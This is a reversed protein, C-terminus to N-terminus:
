IRQVRSAADTEKRLHKRLTSQVNATEVPTRFVHRLRAPSKRPNGKSLRVKLVTCNTFETSEIKNKAKTQEVVQFIGHERDSVQARQRPFTQQDLAHTQRFFFGRNEQAVLRALLILAQGVHRTIRALSAKYFYKIARSKGRDVTHRQKRLMVIEAFCQVMQPPPRNQQCSEFWGIHRPEAKIRFREFAFVRPRLARRGPGCQRLADHPEDGARAAPFVDFQCQARAPMEPFLRRARNGKPAHHSASFLAISWSSM